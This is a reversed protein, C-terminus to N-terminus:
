ERPGRVQDCCGGSCDCRSAFLQGCVAVHHGSGDGHSRRALSGSRSRPSRATRFVSDVGLIHAECGQEVTLGGDVSAAPRGEM